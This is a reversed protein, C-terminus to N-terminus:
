ARAPALRIEVPEGGDTVLAICLEATSLEDSSVVSPIGLHCVTQSGFLECVLSGAFINLLEALAGEADTDAVSDPEDPDLGLMNAAVEAALTRTSALVIRGQKPGVFDIAVALDIGGTATAGEEVFVFATEELIRSAIGEVLERPYSM